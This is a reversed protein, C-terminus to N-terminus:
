FLVYLIVFSRDSYCKSQVSPIKSIRLVMNKCVKVPLRCKHGGQSRLGLAWLSGKSPARASRILIVLGLHRSFWSSLISLIPWCLVLQFILIWHGLLSILESSTSKLSNEWSKFNLLSCYLFFLCFFCYYANDYNSLVRKNSWWSWKDEVEGLCHSQFSNGRSIHPLEVCQLLIKGFSTFFSLVIMKPQWGDLWILNFQFWVLQLGTVLPRHVPHTRVGEGCAGFTRM